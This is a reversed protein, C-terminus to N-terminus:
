RPFLAFALTVLVAAFSPHREGIIGLSALTLKSNFYEKQAYCHIAQKSKPSVHIGIKNCNCFPYQSNVFLGFQPWSPVPPTNAVLQLSFAPSLHCCFFLWLRGEELDTYFTGSIGDTDSSSQYHQLM